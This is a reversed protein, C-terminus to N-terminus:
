RETYKKYAKKNEFITDKAITEYNSETYIILERKEGSKFNLNEFTLTPTRGYIYPILQLEYSGKVVEIEFNGISDTVTKFKKNNEKKTFILEVGEGAPRNYDSVKGNIFVVTTDTVEKVINEKIKGWFSPQFKAIKASYTKGTICSYFSFLVLSYTTLLIKKNQIYKKM